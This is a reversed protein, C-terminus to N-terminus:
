SPNYSSKCRWNEGGTKLCMIFYLLNNHDHLHFISIIIFLSWESVEKNKAIKQEATHIRGYSPSDMSAAFESKSKVSVSRAEGGFLDITSASYSNEEIESHSNKNKMDSSRPCHNVEEVVFESLFEVTPARSQYSEEYAEKLSDSSPLQTYHVQEYSPIPPMSKDAPAHESYPKSPLSNNKMRKNQEVQPPSQSSSNSGLVVDEKIKNKLQFVLILSAFVVFSIIGVLFKYTILAEMQIILDKIWNYESVSDQIESFGTVGNDKSEVIDVEDAVEMFNGVDMITEMEERTANAIFIEENTEMVAKSRQELAHSIDSALGNLELLIPFKHDKSVEIDQSKTETIEVIEDFAAEKFDECGEVSETEGLQLNSLQGVEECKEEEVGKDFNVEKAEMFGVQAAEGKHTFFSDRNQEEVLGFNREERKSFRFDGSEVKKLLSAEFSHNLVKSYGHQFGELKFLPESPNMSSIFSATFALVVILFMTKLLGKFSCCKEEEVDEFEEEDSDETEEVEKDGEKTVSGKTASSSVAEDDFCKLSDFSCSRSNSTEDETQEGIGGELSLFIEKSRMPKYRLFQPRPSLYNKVPDYPPLSSDSFNEDKCNQNSNFLQPSVPTDTECFDDMSPYKEVHTDSSIFKSAVNREVLVNRKQAISNSAASRTPSTYNKTISKNPNMMGTGMQLYNEENEDVNILIIKKIYIGSSCICNFYM